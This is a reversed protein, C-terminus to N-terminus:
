INGTPIYFIVTTGTQEIDAVQISGGHRLIVEACLYLGIGLGYVQLKTNARYFKQFIKKRDGPAIGIGYDRVSFNVQDHDSTITIELNPDNESYKIGNNILNTIVQAIRHRDGHVLIVDSDARVEIKAHAHIVRANDAIEDALRRIDFTTKALSIEKLKANVPLAMEGLLRNIRETSGLARTVINLAKEESRPQLMRELLQLSAMVASLPTKLEHMAVNLLEDRLVELDKKETIDLTTGLLEYPIGNKYLVKGNADIWHVSGDPHKVRYQAKYLQQHEIAASVKAQMEPLDEPLICSLMEAYSFAKSPDWGFNKKCQPTCAMFNSNVLNVRWFGMSVQELAIDLHEDSINFTQDANPLKSSM